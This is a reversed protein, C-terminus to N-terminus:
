DSAVKFAKIQYVGNSVGVVGADEYEYPAPNGLSSITVGEGMVLHVAALPCEVSKAKRIAAANLAKIWELSCTDPYVREQFLVPSNTKPDWLLKLISRAVIKGSENKIALLRIKGDMIYGMLCKNLFPSGDLRQCSGAVETGCLLIEQWDDTDVLVLGKSTTRSLLGELVGQIDNLLELHPTVIKLEAALLEIIRLQEENVVARYLQMAYLQVKKIPPSDDNLTATLERFIEEQRASGSGMFESLLPLQDGAPTFGHKDTLIKMKLFEVPSFTKKSTTGEGEIVEVPDIAAKWKEFVMPAYSVLMKLHDSKTKDYRMKIYTGELVEQIFRNVIDKMASNQLRHLGALYALFINGVRPPSFVRLYKELFHDVTKTNIGCAEELGGLIQAKLKVTMDIAYSKEGAGEDLSAALLSGQGTTCLFQVLAIRESVQELSPKLGKESSVVCAYLLSLKESDTLEFEEWIAELINLLQQLQGTAANKLVERQRAWFAHIIAVQPMAECAGKAALTVMPLSLQAMSALVLYNEIKKKDTLVEECFRQTIATALSFNRYDVMRALHEQIIPTGVGEKLYPLAYTLLLLKRYKARTYAITEELSATKLIKDNLLDLSAKFHPYPTLEDEISAILGEEERSLKRGKEVLGRLLLLKEIQVQDSESLMEYNSIDVRRLDPDHLAAIKAIEQILDTEHSIPFDKIRRMFAAGYHVALRKAFAVRSSENKISFDEIWHLCDLDRAICFKALVLRKAEDAISFFKISCALWRPASRALIKAVEFRDNEESLGYLAIPFTISSDADVTAAIKALALRDAEHRIEFKTINTLGNLSVAIRALELRRAESAIGFSKVNREFISPNRDISIKAIEFRAEENLIEFNEIKLSNAAIHSATIKAIEVRDNEDAIGYNKIYTGLCKPNYTGELKAIEVLAAQNTIGFTHIESSVLGKHYSLRKVVEVRLRMDQIEAIGDLRITDGDVIKNDQFFKEALERYLMQEALVRGKLLPEVETVHATILMRGLSEADIKLAIATILSEFLSKGEETALQLLIRPNEFMSEEAKDGSVKFASSISAKLMGFLVVSAEEKRFKDLRERLVEVSLDADELDLLFLTLLDVGQQILADTATPVAKKKTAIKTVILFLAEPDLSGDGSCSPSHLKLALLARQVVSKCNWMFADSGFSETSFYPLYSPGLPAVM